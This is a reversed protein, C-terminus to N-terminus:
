LRITEVKTGKPPIRFAFPRKSRMALDKIRPWNRVLQQILDCRSRSKGALFFAGIGYSRIADLEAPNRRIREDRTVLFWGHQGLHQLWVLDDTDQPFIGQLHVVDEQFASMGEALYKSLNNDLFFTM